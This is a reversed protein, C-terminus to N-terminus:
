IGVIKNYDPSFYKNFADVDNCKISVEIKKKM